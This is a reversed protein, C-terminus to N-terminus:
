FSSALLDAVTGRYIPRDPDGNGDLILLRDDSAGPARDILVAAETGQDPVPKPESSGDAGYLVQGATPEPVVVLLDNPLFAADAPVLLALAAPEPATEDGLWTRENGAAELYGFTRADEGRTWAQLLMINRDERSGAYLVKAEVAEQAVGTERAFARLAQLYLENNVTGRVPWDVVNSPAASPASDTGPGEGEPEAPATAPDPASVEKLLSGDPARVAYRDGDVDRELLPGTAVGNDLETMPEVEQDPPGYEITTEPAAVVLLRAAVDGALAVALGLRDSELLAADHVFEPGAESSQAVGWRTEGDVEAVFVVEVRQSPEYVQGFLPTLRVSGEPVGRLVAYEREITAVSGTGLQEQPVGRYPWPNAPDLAYQSAVPSADPTPTNAVTPLSETSGPTLAPVAVAIATVTLATGAISAAVRNRRIRRARREIGVIPDPVLPVSDARSSLLARLEDDLPKM